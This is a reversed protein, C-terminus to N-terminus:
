FDELAAPTAQVIIIEAVDLGDLPLLDDCPRSRLEDIHVAEAFWLPVAGRAVLGTLSPAPALSAVVALLEALHVACSLAVTASAKSGEGSLTAM